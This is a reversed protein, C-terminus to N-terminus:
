LFAALYWVRASCKPAPATVAVALAPALHAAIVLLVNFQEGADIVPQLRPGLRVRVQCQECVAWATRDAGGLVGLATSPVDGLDALRRAHLAPIAAVPKGALGHCSPADIVVM